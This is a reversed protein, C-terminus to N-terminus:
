RSAGKSLRPSCHRAHHHHRCFNTHETAAIRDFAAAMGPYSLAIAAVESGVLVLAALVGALAAKLVAFGV